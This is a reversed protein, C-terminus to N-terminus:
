LIYTYTCTFIYLCMCIHKQANKPWKLEEKKLWSKLGMKSDTQKGKGWHNVPTGKIHKAFINEGM